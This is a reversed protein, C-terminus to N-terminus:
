YNKINLYTSWDARTKWNKNKNKFYWQVNTFFELIVWIFKQKESIVWYWVKTTTTKENWNKIYLKQFNLCCKNLKLISSSFLKNSIRWM